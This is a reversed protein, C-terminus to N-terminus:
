NPGRRLADELMQIKRDKEAGAEKLQVIRENMVQVQASLKQVDEGLDKVSNYLQLFVFAALPVGVLSMLRAALVLWVSDALSAAAKGGGVDAM